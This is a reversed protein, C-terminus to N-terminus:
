SGGNSGEGVAMTGVAPGGGEGQHQAERGGSLPSVAFLPLPSLYYHRLAICVKRRRDAALSDTERKLAEREIKLTLIEHDLADVAQSDFLSSSLHLIPLSTTSLM